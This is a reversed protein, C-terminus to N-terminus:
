GVDTRGVVGRLSGNLGPLFYPQFSILLLHVYFYTFNETSYADYGLLPLTTCGCNVESVNETNQQM